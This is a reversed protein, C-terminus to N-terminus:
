QHSNSASPCRVRRRKPAVSRRIQASGTGVPQGGVAFWGLTFLAFPLISTRAIDLFYCTQRRKSSPHGRKASTALFNRSSSPLTGSKNLTVAKRGRAHGHLRLLNAGIDRHVPIFQHAAM